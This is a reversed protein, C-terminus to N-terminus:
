GTKGKRQKEAAERWRRAWNERITQPERAIALSDAPVDQTIVSGAATMAGDGVSVPAVLITDSGIFAQKGIHTRHKTRGDYNCTITGAGINTDSGVDCDGLYSLHMVRTRDGIIANKVEVSAGIHAEEGVVTGPRLYSFPGVRAGPRLQVRDLVCFASVQCREDVTVDELTCYPGIECDEGIRTQGKLIAGPLVTTDRGITVSDEIYTSDPDVITVGSLMLRENVRRRLVAEARALQARTNIGEAEDSDATMVAEVPKGDAVLAAIVDTLYYEAQDNDPQLTQLADFLDAARFCYISTNIERISLQEQTADRHEVIELVRGAEDRVIRGYGFPDPHVATLVTCAAQTARHHEVLRVLTEPTLLPADGCLVLLDGGADGVIPRTQMMAHGTGLPPDQRVFQLGDHAELAARICEENESSVVVITNEPKLVEAVELVREIMPRGMLPHLVKPLKSQMRKGQGAALIVCQMGRMSM